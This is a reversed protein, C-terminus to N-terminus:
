RVHAAKNLVQDKYEKVGAWGKSKYARKIHRLHNVQGAEYPLLYYQNDALPQNYQDTPPNKGQSRHLAKIDSGLHRRMVHAQADKGPVHAYLKGEKNPKVPTDKGFQNIADQESEVPVWDLQKTYIPIQPLNNAVQRLDKLIQPTIKM